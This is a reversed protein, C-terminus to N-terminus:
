RRLTSDPLTGTRLLVYPGSQGVKPYRELFIDNVPMMDREVPGVVVYEVGYREILAVAEPAGSYIRKIDEERAAYPLGHSWVHASYGMLSRRGSLFVPHNYIPAHLILSRTPVTGRVLDAFAIGERTFVRLESARSIVRWVDLCGALMLSVALAASVVRFLRGGRWLRVLVLAVLPASAVHWYILVKINDWIWPALMVVNPILFCLTFPLYFRLLPRAVPTRDSRWFVALLLLPILAGTNKVWFWLINQNGHDWGLHWGVFRETEVSTGGALWIVQPLSLVLSAAFFPVWLRLRGLTLALGAGMAMVVAYSHAHVLPLLGALVGAAMMRRSVSVPQLMSAPRSRDPLAAAGEFSRWWLTFIIIAIPLGLLISRQPLLLATVMNGWRWDTGNMVTYDHPLHTLVSVFGDESRVLEPVLLWWGLGGSLIVLAPTLFAAARDRTLDYSWRRLLGILSIALVLNEVLMARRLSLGTRVFMAAVLDALFSYTFRVGAYAPHEPPFNEGLAFRTIVGLHFPLDGYNNTVGTYLGDPREFAVRDLVTWVLLGVLLCLMSSFVTRRTPHLVYARSAAGAAEVDARLQARRQRASLLAVPSAALGAAFISTPLTLGLWSALSFGIMGLVALGTCAGACLRWGLSAKDDYLYTALTGGLIAASAVSLTLM